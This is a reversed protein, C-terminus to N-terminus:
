INKYFVAELGVRVTTIAYFLLSVYWVEAQKGIVM